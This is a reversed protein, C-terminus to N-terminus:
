RNFRFEASSVGAWILEDLRPAIQDGADQLYEAVLEREETLAPRSFLTMAIEDAVANPDSALATTRSKLSAGGTSVWSGVVGGNAFFLSQDATAFFSGQPQAAGNGFLSVFVGVSPELKNLAGVLAERQRSAQWSADQIQESTGPAAAELEARTAVVYNELVGTSQMLSWALQEPTMPSLSAIIGQEEAAMVWAQRLAEISDSLAIQETELPAIELHLGELEATLSTLSAQLTDVELQTEDRAAVASDRSIMRQSLESSSSTAQQNAQACRAELLEIVPQIDAATETWTETTTRLAVMSRNLQQALEQNQKVVGSIQDVQGQLDNLTQTAAALRAQALLLAPQSSDISSQAVVLRQRLENLQNSLALQREQSATFDAAFQLRAKRQVAVTARTEAIVRTQRALEWRDWADAFHRQQESYAVDAADALPITSQLQENALRLEDTLATLETAISDVETQWTMIRTQFLPVDAEAPTIAFANAAQTLQSEIAQFPAILNQLEQSRSQKASISASTTDIKHQALLRPAVAIQRAAAAETLHRQAEDRLVRASTEADILAQDVAAPSEGEPLESRDAQSDAALVTDADFTRQYARSLVLERIFQRTSYNAEILGETIADLLEPHTALNDSHHLDLPQVLGRGFLTAWLRNSWNKAFSRDNATLLSQALLERRSGFPIGRVNDAPAVRYLVEPAIPPDLVPWGEPTRTRANGKDGTFVSTFEFEGDAKEAVFAKGDKDKFISSRLLGAYLGYYDSQEYSNIHPHDHCQACQLDVGFYVRGVDRTLVNADVERDLLFKAAARTREDTGDAALLEVALQNLPKDTEFSTRLYSLWEEQPVYVAARREMVSVDFWTAMRRAHRPDALLTNVLQERKDAGSDALFARTTEVSPIQGILDLHVRRVFEADGALPWDSQGWRLALAQDVQDRLRLSSSETQQAFGTNAFAFVVALIGLLRVVTGIDCRPHDGARDCALGALRHDRAAFDNRLPM